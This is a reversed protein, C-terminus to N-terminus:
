CCTDCPGGRENPTARVVIPGAWSRCEPPSIKDMRGGYGERMVVVPSVPSSSSSTPSMAAPPPQTPRAGSPRTTKTRWQGGRPAPGPSPSRWWWRTRAPRHRPPARARARGHREATGGRRAPGNRRSRSGARRARPAAPGRLSEAHGLLQRSDGAQLARDLHLRHGAAGITEAPAAPHAERHVVVAGGAEAPVAGVPDLADVSAGDGARGDCGGTREGAPPGAHGVELDDGARPGALCHDRDRGPASPRGPEGLDVGPDDHVPRQPSAGPGDVGRHAAAGVPNRGPDEPLDVGARRLGKELRDEGHGAVAAPATRRRGTRRPRGTRPGAPPRPPGTPSRRRRRARRAPRRRRRTVVATLERVQPDNPGRHGGRSAADPM